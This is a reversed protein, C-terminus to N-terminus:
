GKTDQGVCGFRNSKIRALWGLRGGIWERGVLYSGGTWKRGKLEDKSEKDTKHVYVGRGKDM